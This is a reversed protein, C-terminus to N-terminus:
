KRSRLFQNRADNERPPDFPQPEGIPQGGSGFRLAPERLRREADERPFVYDPLRHGFFSSAAVERLLIAIGDIGLEGDGRKPVPVRDFWGGLAAGPELVVWDGPLADAGARLTQEGRIHRAGKVSLLDKAAPSDVPLALM